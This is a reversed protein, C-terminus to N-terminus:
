TMETVILMMSTIVKSLLVIFGDILIDRLSSAIIVNKEKHM